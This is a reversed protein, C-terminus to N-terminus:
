LATPTVILNMRRHVGDHIGPLSLVPGAPPNGALILSWNKVWCIGTVAPPSLLSAPLSFVPWRLRCELRSGGWHQEEREHNEAGSMREGGEPSLSLGSESRHSQLRQRLCFGLGGGPDHKRNSGRDSCLYVQLQFLATKELSWPGFRYWSLGPSFMSSFFASAVIENSKLHLKLFNFMWTWMETWEQMKNQKSHFVVFKIIWIKCITGTTRNAM